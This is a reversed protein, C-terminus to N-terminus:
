FVNKNLNSIKKILKRLFHNLVFSRLRFLYKNQLMFLKFFISGTRYVYCRIRRSYIPHYIYIFKRKILESSKTGKFEYFFEFEPPTHYDSWTWCNEKIYLDKIKHFLKFNNKETLALPGLSIIKHSSLTITDRSLYGFVFMDFGIDDKLKSICRHVQIHEVHGYEGWPNHTYVQKFNYLKERLIEYLQHFNQKYERDNRGGLVGYENEVIKEWNNNMANKNSAQPIDLFTVNNLPYKKKVSRRGKTITLDIEEELPIDSFCIFIETAKQLISSAFLIEDDPHAVVIAFNDHRKKM